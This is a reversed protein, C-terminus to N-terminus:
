SYQPCLDLIPTECYPPLALMEYTIRSVFNNDYFYVLNGDEFRLIYSSLHDFEKASDVAFYNGPPPHSAPQLIFAYSGAFLLICLMVAVWATRRRGPAKETQLLLTFRQRVRQPSTSGTYGVSLRGSPAKGTKLVHLLAASYHLRGAKSLKQCVRRDCRLELLQDVNNRLFYVAPNWWLLCCLIQTGLKLWLDHGRYHYLEHLLICRLNEAPLQAVHPPLLIVPRFFGVMMVTSIGPFIGISVPTSCGLSHAAQRCLRYLQAGKQPIRCQRAIRHQRCLAWGLHLLLLGSGTGWILLLLGGVSLGPRLEKWFFNMIKPYVHWCNVVASGLIEVPFLCRLFGLFFIVGSLWLYRGKTHIVLLSGVLVTLMFCLLAMILSYETLSM